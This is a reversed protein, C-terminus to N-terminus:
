NELATKCEEAEKTGRGKCDDLLLDVLTRLHERGPATKSNSWAQRARRIGSALDDRYIFSYALAANHRIKPDRSTEITM